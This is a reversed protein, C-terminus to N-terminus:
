SAELAGIINRSMIRHGEENPHTHGDIVLDTEVSEFPSLNDIFDLSNAKAVGDIVSRVDQMTMAPSPEPEARDRVPGACMLVVDGMPQLHDVIAQLSQEFKTGAHTASKDSRDNTGFQVFFFQDQQEIAAPKSFKGSLNYSNYTHAMQGIVGQNTFRVTKPVEIGEVHLRRTGPLGTSNTRIEVVKDRVHGFTHRRRSSGISFGDTGPRTTFTGVSTGDVILDYNNFDGAGYSRFLLTFESGTFRFSISQHSSEDQGGDSLIHVRGTPSAPRDVSKVTQHAGSASLTFGEGEPFIIAPKIYTAISEGSPSAGWNSLRLAGGAMYKAGVHSRLLNWLSPTSANDRATDLLRSKPQASANGPLTRGWMISDGIGVIGVFQVLPNNLAARLSKLQGGYPTFRPADMPM